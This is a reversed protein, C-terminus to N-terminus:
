YIAKLCIARFAITEWFCKSKCQHRLKSIIDNLLQLLSALCSKSTFEPTYVSIFNKCTRLGQSTVLVNEYDSPLCKM